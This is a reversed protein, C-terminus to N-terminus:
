NAYSNYNKALDEPTTWAALRTTNQLYVEDHDTNLAAVLTYSYFPDVRGWLTQHKDIEHADSPGPKICFCFGNDKYFNLLKQVRESRKSSEIQDGKKYLSPKEDKWFIDESKDALFRMIENHQKIQPRSVDVTMFQCQAGAALEEIKKLLISGHGMGDEYSALSYIKATKTANSEFFRVRAAALPQINSDTSMKCLVITQLKKQSEQSFVNKSVGFRKKWVKLALDVCIKYHTDSSDTVMYYLKNGHKDKEGMELIDNKIEPRRKKAAPRRSAFKAHLAIHVIYPNNM